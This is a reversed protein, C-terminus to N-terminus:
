ADRKQEMYERVKKSTPLSEIAGPTAISLAATYNAISLVKGVSDDTCIRTCFAGIFADGAARPDILEVDEVAKKYYFREPTNMIVGKEGLTVLVTPVGRGRIVASAVRAEDLNFRTWDRKWDSHIKVGTMSKAAQENVILYTIHQMFEKSLKKVPTPNLVVNVQHEYAYRAVEENVEMPVANQLVVLDYKEIEDELYCIEDVTIAMCAGPVIISRKKVKRGPVKELLVISSGTPLTDDYLIQETHVGAEKCVKILEKGDQDRGIKGILTVDAGLRAMQVAQNAGKGGPSKQIDEGMVTQGEEPIVSTEIGHNMMLSGVVLIKPRKNM